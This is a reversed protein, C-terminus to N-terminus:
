RASARSRTRRGHDAHQGLAEGAPAPPAARQDVVVGHVAQQAAPAAGAEGREGGAAGDGVVGVVLHQQLGLALDDARDVLVPGDLAHGAVHELEAIRGVADQAHLAADHADLVGVARRRADREPQALRRAAAVLQRRRDRAEAGVHGLPQPAVRVPLPRQAPQDVLDADGLRGRQLQDFVQARRMRRQAAQRRLVRMTSSRKKSSAPPM